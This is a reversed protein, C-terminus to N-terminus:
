GLLKLLEKERIQKTGHKKADELKSSGANDGVVVYDTEKSVSTQFKGGLARIKEAAEDRSMAELTGTIAFSKGELKTGRKLRKPKVGAKKLKKLLKQNREENFWAYISHAVVDGIGEVAEFDELSATQIKKLSGFREALDIATQRGVHRIGLGYLFRDLPVTKKENIAEVLNEASKDAFRELKTIDKQKLSYLDAVDEVLGEKLLLKVNQEGLGEIDFADKSAFHFIQGRQKAPCNPNPCRWVVDDAKHKKLKTNCVPCVKPMKFKQESGDRLKPLPEVVEPIVDGAKQIVVTDGIRIDKRAVEDENHLTAFQVTSGAVKVPEMVAVPTAAGTRGISVIIDKVKTTAQEAPYKYAIAGRPAKGVVGLQEFQERGNVRVVIGDSGFPLDRRKEEWQKIFEMAEDLSKVVQHQQNILFGLKHVNKYEDDLTAQPPDTLLGYAHFRLHRKATLKPDLQRVSGAALNRPNAYTAEGAEERAENIQKFDEKYIVVEGRVEVRGGTSIGEERLRLPITPITRLNQTVDEGRYGDGRTLGRALSGDEYILTAALGDMKIDLHYDPKAGEGLLKAIREAWKRLEEESFADGLSLMPVTHEVSEFKDLPEGGVRQTPSEPTVLEPHEAELQKLERTLSDYIEDNVTPDDLVHYRYRYESIQERLKAARSAAQKKNSTPM